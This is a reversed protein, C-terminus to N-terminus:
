RPGIVWSVLQDPHFNSWSGRSRVQATKRSVYAKNLGAVLSAVSRAWDEGTSVAEKARKLVGPAASILHEMRGASHYEHETSYLVRHGTNRALQDLFDFILGRTMGAITIPEEQWKDYLDEHLLRTIDGEIGYLPAGLRKSEEAFVASDPFRIDYIVKYFPSQKAEAQSFLDLTAPLSVAAVSLKLFRRRNIKM